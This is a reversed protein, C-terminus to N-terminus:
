LGQENNEEEKKKFWGKNIKRPKTADEVVRKQIVALNLLKADKSLSTSTLIEGKAKYYDAFFKNNMITGSILEMEKYTRLPLKPLGVEETTLNGVKTTDDSTAVKNLFSFVNQKEEPVSAGFGLYEPIGFNDKGDQNDTQQEEM